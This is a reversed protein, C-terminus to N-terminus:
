WKQGIKVNGTLVLYDPVVAIGLGVVTPANALDGGAILEGADANCIFLGILVASFAITKLWEM